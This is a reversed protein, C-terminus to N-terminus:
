RSAAAVKRDFDSDMTDGLRLELRNTLQDRMPGLLDMNRSVTVIVHIGYGLGRTALDTVVPMLTVDYDQKFAAWGDVM